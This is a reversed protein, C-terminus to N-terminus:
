HTYVHTVYKLIKYAYTFYIYYHAANYCKVVFTYYIKIMNVGMGLQQGRVM